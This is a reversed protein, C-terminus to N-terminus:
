EHTIIISFSITASANPQKLVLMYNGSPLQSVDLQTLGQQVTQQLCCIGQQNYLYISAGITAGQLNLYNDAPVPYCTVQENVRPADTSTGFHLLYSDAGYVFREETPSNYADVSICKIRYDGVPLKAFKPTFTYSAGAAISVKEAKTVAAFMNSSAHYAIATLYGNYPEIGKNVLQFPPVQKLDAQTSYSEKASAFLTAHHYQQPEVVTIPINLNMRKTSELFFGEPFRRKYKIDLVYSGTDAPLRAIQYVFLRHENPDLDVGLTPLTYVIKGNRKLIPELQGVYSTSGENHITLSFACSDYSDFHIAKFSGEEMSLVIEKSEKDPRMKFAGNEKQFCFFHPADNYSRTEKYAEGEELGKWVPYAIFTGDPVDSLSIATGFNAPTLFNFDAQKSAITKVEKNNSADVIRVALSGKFNPDSTNYATFSIGIETNKNRVFASIAGAVDISPLGADGEKYPELYLLAQQSLNYSGLAAGIGLTTPKLNILRYYGNGYGSWGWNFHFFGNGDYGDCVFAHGGTKDLGTYFVPRGAKLENYILQRWQKGTYYMRSDLHLSKKYKFNERLLRIAFNSGTVSESVDYEMNVGYGIDRLFRAVENIEKPPTSDTLRGPMMDYSYAFSNYDVERRKGKLDVYSHKGQPQVPWQNYRLVQGLATAVCGVPPHPQGYALAPIFNNYPKGQDWKIDYKDLLPAIAQMNPEEGSQPVEQKLQEIAEDYCLLWYRVGDPLHRADLQQENSYCLVEPLQEPAAVCVFGKQTPASQPGSWVNYIYYNPQSSLHQSSAAALRPLALQEVQLSEASRLAMHRAAFRHAIEQAQKPSRYQGQGQLPLFLLAMLLLLLPSYRHM